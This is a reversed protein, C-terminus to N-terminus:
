RRLAPDSPHYDAVEIVQTNSARDGVRRGRDDIIAFLPEVLFGFPLANLGLWVIERLASKGRTCPANTELDVVMLDVLSKGISQGNPRGDKTLRYYFAWGVGAIMLLIAIALSPGSQPETAVMLAIPVALPAFAVFWDVVLAVLRSGLSARRYQVAGTRADRVPAVPLPAAQYEELALDALADDPAALGRREMEETLALWAEASLAPAAGRAPAARKVLEEDSAARFEARYTDLSPM